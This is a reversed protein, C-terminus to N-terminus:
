RQVIVVLSASRLLQQIKELLAVIDRQNGICARRQDRIRSEFEYPTNTAL